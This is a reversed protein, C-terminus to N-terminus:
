GLSHSQGRRARDRERHRQKSMGRAMFTLVEMERDTLEIRHTFEALRQAIAGPLIRGGGTFSCQRGHNAEARRIGAALGNRAPGDFEPQGDADAAFQGDPGRVAKRIPSM